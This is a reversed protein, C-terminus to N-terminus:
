KKKRGNNGIDFYIAAVTMVTFCIFGALVVIVWDSM